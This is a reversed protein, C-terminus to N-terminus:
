TEKECWTTRGSLNYVILTTFAAILMAVATLAGMIRIPPSAAFTLITFGAAVVTANTMIAAATGRTLSKESLFGHVAYDVGVGLALSSLMSTGIDLHIGLMSMAGYIWILTMSIPLSMWFVASMSRTAILLVVIVAALAAGTSLLQNREVSESLGEYMVPLGNVSLDLEISESLAEPESFVDVFREM